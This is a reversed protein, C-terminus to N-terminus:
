ALVVFGLAGGFDLSDGFGSTHDVHAAHVTTEIEGTGEAIEFVFLVRVKLVMLLDDGALGVDFDLRTRRVILEYHHTTIPYPLFIYLITL